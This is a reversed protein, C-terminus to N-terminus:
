NTKTRMESQRMPMSDILDFILKPKVGGEEHLKVGGDKGILSIGTYQNQIDELTKEERNQCILQRGKRLFVLLDRDKLDKPQELLEGLQQNANKMDADIVVIRNQWRYDSFPSSQNTFTLAMILIFQTVMM